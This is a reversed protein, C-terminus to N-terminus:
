DILDKFMEDFICDINEMQEAKRKRGRKKPIKEVEEPIDFFCDNSCLELYNMVKLICTEIEQHNKAGSVILAGTKFILGCSKYFIFFKSKSYIFIFHIKM